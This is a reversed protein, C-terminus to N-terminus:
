HSHHNDRLKRVVFECLIGITSGLIVVILVARNTIELGVTFHQRAWLALLTLASTLGFVGLLASFALKKITKM